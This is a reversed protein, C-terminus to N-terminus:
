KTFFGNSTRHVRTGDEAEVGHSEVTGQGQVLWAHSKTERSIRGCPHVEVRNFFCRYPRGNGYCEFGLVQYLPSPDEGVFRFLEARHLKSFDIKVTM